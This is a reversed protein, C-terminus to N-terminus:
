EESCSRGNNGDARRATQTPTHTVERLPDDVIPCSEYMKCPDLDICTRPDRTGDVDWAVADNLVTLHTRFFDEDRLSLFVGGQEILPKADFRRVTGDHFYAYVTYDEGAVAQTVKPIIDM